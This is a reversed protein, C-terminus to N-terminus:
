EACIRFSLHCIVFSLLLGFEGRRSMSREGVRRFSM